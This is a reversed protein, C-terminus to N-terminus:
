IWVCGYRATRASWIQVLLEGLSFGLGPARLRALEEVARRATRARPPAPSVSLDRLQCKREVVRGDLFSRTRKWIIPLARM